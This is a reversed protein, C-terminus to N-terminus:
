SHIQGCRQDVGVHMVSAKKRHRLGNSATKDFSPRPQVCGSANTSEWEQSADRLVVPKTPLQRPGSPGVDPCELARERRGVEAMREDPQATANPPHNMAEIAQFSFVASPGNEAFCAAIASM